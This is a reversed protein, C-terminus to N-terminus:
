DGVAFIIADVGKVWEEYRSKESTEAVSCNTMREFRSFTIDAFRERLRQEITAQIRAAAVKDNVFLGIRKGNLDSLRPSIGQPPIPDAEAWPNLVEYVSM